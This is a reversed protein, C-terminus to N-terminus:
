TLHFLMSLFKWWGVVGPYGPSCINEEPYKKYAKINRCLAPTITMSLLFHANNKVCPVYPNRM